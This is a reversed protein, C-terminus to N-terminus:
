APWPTTWASAGIMPSDLSIRAKYALALHHFPTKDCCEAMQRPWQRASEQDTVWLQAMQTMEFASEPCHRAPDFHLGPQCIRGTALLLQAWALCTQFSGAPAPAHPSLHKQTEWFLPFLAWEGLRLTTVACATHLNFLQDRTYAHTLAPNEVIARLLKRADENRGDELLLRLQMAM